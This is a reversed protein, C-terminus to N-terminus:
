RSVSARSAVGAAAYYSSDQGAPFSRSRGHNPSMSFHGSGPGKLVGFRMLNKAQCPFRCFHKASAEVGANRASWRRSTSTINTHRAPGSPRTPLQDTPLEAYSRVEHSLALIVTHTPEDQKDRKRRDRSGLVTNKRPNIGVCIMKAGHRTLDPFRWFKSKM